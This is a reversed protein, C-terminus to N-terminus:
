RGDSQHLPQNKLVKIAKAQLVLVRRARRLQRAPRPVQHYDNQTQNRYSDMLVTCAPVIQKQYCCNQFTCRLTVVTHWIVAVLACEFARCTDVNDIIPPQDTNATAMDSLLPRRSHKVQHYSSCTLMWTTAVHPHAASRRFCSNHNYSLKQDYIYRFYIIACSCIIFSCM